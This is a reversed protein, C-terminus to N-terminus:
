CVCIGNEYLNVVFAVAIHLGVICLDCFISYLMMM